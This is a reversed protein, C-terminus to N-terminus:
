YAMSNGGLAKAARCTVKLDIDATVILTGAASAAFHRKGKEYAIGSASDIM